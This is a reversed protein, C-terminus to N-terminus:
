VRENLLVLWMGTAGALSGLPFSSYTSYCATYVSTAACRGGVYIRAFSWITDTGVVLSLYSLLIEVAM